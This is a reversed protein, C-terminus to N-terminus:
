VRELLMARLVHIVASHADELAGYNESDLSLHVDCSQAAQGGRFGLVGATAAAHQRALKLLNLINPSKGSCSFVLVMDASDLREGPLSKTFVHQYGFDNGIATLHAHSDNLCVAKIGCERLHVGAHSANAASGGNGALYVTGGQQRRARLLSALADIGQPRIQGLIKKLEDRHAEWFGEPSGKRSGYPGNVPNTM